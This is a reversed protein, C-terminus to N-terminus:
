STRFFPRLPDHVTSQKPKRNFTTRKHNFLRRREELYERHSIAWEYYDLASLKLEDRLANCLHCSIVLNSMRDRTKDGRRAEVHEWTAYNPGTANEVELGHGCYACRHNQAEMFMRKYRKRQSHHGVKFKPPRAMDRRLKAYRREAIVEATAPPAHQFDESIEYPPLVVGDQAAMRNIAAVILVRTEPYISQPKEPKNTEGAIFAEYYAM